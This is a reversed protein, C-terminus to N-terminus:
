DHAEHWGNIISKFNRLPNKGITCFYIHVFLFVSIIFGGIIHFIDAIFIGVQWFIREPVLDPLLLGIGTIVMVPVIMYMIVIYSFQQLPNFKNSTTIPFPPKQGKFIGISYYYAQKLLKNIYGKIKFQYQKVNGSIINAIIFLLYSISLLVGSYNHMKIALDFRIFPYAPDTYQLSIGTIILFIICLANVLHWIRIAVPYLYIKESM